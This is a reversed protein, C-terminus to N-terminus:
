SGVPGESPPSKSAIASSVVLSVVSGVARGTASGDAERQFRRARVMGSISVAVTTPTSALGTM